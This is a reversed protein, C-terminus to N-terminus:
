DSGGKPAVFVLNRELYVSAAGFQYVQKGLHKVQPKPRFVIGNNSAEDALYDSLPLNVDEASVASATPELGAAEARASPREPSPSSPVERGTSAAEMMSKM